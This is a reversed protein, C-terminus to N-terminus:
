PAPRLCARFGCNCPAPPPDYFFQQVECSVVIVSSSGLGSCYDAYITGGCVKPDPPFNVRQTQNCQYAFFRNPSNHGCDSPVGREASLAASCAQQAEQLTSAMSVSPFFACLFIFFLIAATVRRAPVSMTEAAM